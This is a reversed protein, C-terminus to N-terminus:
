ILTLMRILLALQDYETCLNRSTTSVAPIKGYIMKLLSAKKVNSSNPFLCLQIQLSSLKQIIDSFDNCRSFHIAQHTREGPPIIPGNKM